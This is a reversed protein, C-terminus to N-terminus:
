EKELVPPNNFFQEEDPKLMEALTNFWTVGVSDKKYQVIM